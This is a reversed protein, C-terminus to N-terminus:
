WVLITVNRFVYFSWSFWVGLFLKPQKSPIWMFLVGLFGGANVGMYFITFAGDKRDPYKDYLGSVISTVNPKFLGNGIILLAIGIYLTIETELAMAAHGLTM